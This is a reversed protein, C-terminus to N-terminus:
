HIPQNATKTKTQSIFFKQVSVNQRHIRRTTVPFIRGFELEKSLRSHDWIALSLNAQFLQKALCPGIFHRKLHHGSSVMNSYQKWCGKDTVTCSLIIIMCLCSVLCHLLFNLSLFLWWIPDQQLGKKEIDNDPMGCLLQVAIGCSESRLM